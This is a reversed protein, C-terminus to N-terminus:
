PPLTMIPVFLVFHCRLCRMKESFTTQKEYEIKLLEVKLLEKRLSETKLLEIKLVKKRFELLQSYM